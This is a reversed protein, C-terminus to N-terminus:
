TSVLNRLFKTCTHVLFVYPELSVLRESKDLVLTALLSEVSSLECLVVETVVLVIRVALVECVVRIHDDLLALEDDTLVSRLHLNLFLTEIVYDEVVVSCTVKRVACLDNDLLSVETNTAAHIAPSECFTFNLLSVIAGDCVSPLVLIECLASLELESRAPSPLDVEVEVVLNLSLNRESEVFAIVESVHVCAVELNLLSTKIVDGKGVFACTARDGLRERVIVGKCLFAGSRGSEIHDTVIETVPFPSTFAYHIHDRYVAM